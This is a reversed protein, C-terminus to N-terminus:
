KKDGSSNGEWAVLFKFVFFVALVLLSVIILGFKRPAAVWLVLAALMVLIVSLLGAGILDVSRLSKRDHVDCGEEAELADKKNRNEKASLRSHKNIIVNM